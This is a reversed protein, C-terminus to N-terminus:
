DAGRRREGYPSGPQLLAPLEVLRDISTEAGTEDGVGIFDIGAADAALRDSEADGVYLAQHAEVDLDMLCKQLMDPYPKPRPVDLTGVASAFYRSLGFREVVGPVTKGRNTAMGLRYSEALHALVDYLRPVPDMLLYFPGYDLKQAERRAEEVARSDDGFLAQMLQPSAMTRALSEQEATLRPRDIRELVANFFGINARASDFLVGDCDFLIASLM